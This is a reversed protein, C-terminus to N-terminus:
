GIVVFASRWGYAITLYAVLPPALASGASTGANFIGIALARQGAPFWEAIAKAAAPWAGPQGLGLLFRAAALSWKGQV